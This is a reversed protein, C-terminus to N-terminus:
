PRSSGVEGRTVVVKAVALVGCCCLGLGQMSLDQLTCRLPSPLLAISLLSPPSSPAPPIKGGERQSGSARTTSRRRRSLTGAPAPVLKTPECGRPTPKHPMAWAELIRLAKQHELKRLAVGPDVNIDDVVVKAHPAAVRRFMQLDLRAAAQSHGGDVLLLDCQTGNRLAADVFPPLTEYSYGEHLHFRHSFTARLLQAAPASYNWRMLDFVHAKIRPNGLLM